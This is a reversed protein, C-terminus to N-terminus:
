CFPPFSAFSPLFSPPLQFSSPLVLHFEPFLLCLRCDARSPLECFVGRRVWLTATGKVTLKALATAAALDDNTFLFTHQQIWSYSGGGIGLKRQLHDEQAIALNGLFFLSTSTDNLEGTTSVGRYPFQETIHYVKSEYGHNVENRTSELTACALAVKCNKWM